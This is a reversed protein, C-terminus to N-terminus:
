FLVSLTHFLQAHNRSDEENKCYQKNALRLLVLRRAQHVLLKRYCETLPAAEWLRRPGSVM